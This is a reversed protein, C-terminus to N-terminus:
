TRKKLAKRVTEASISEVIECEVLRDVLLKLTWSKRGGPAESCATAVLFAEAKGDLKKAKRNKQIQRNLAFELGQEVFRQRVREVTVVGVQLSKVM